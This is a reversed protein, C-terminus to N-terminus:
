NEQNVWYIGLFLSLHLSQYNGETQPKKGPIKGLLTNIKHFNNATSLQGVGLSGKSQLGDPEEARASLPIRWAFISSQTAM